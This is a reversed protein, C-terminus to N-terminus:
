QSIMEIKVLMVLTAFEGVIRRLEPLVVNGDMGPMVYDAIILPIDHGDHVLEDILELTEEASEALEIQYQTSLHHQLQSKLSTLVMKEDDVCIIVPKTM